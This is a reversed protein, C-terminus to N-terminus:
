PCFTKPITFMEKLILEFSKIVGLKDASSIFLFNPGSLSMILKVKLIGVKADGM